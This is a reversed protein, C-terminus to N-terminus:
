SNISPLNSLIWSRLKEMSALGEEVKIIQKDFNITRDIKPCNLRLSFDNKHKIYKIEDILVNKIEKEFSESYGKFAADINGQSLKHYFIVNKLENDFLIPWDSNHPIIEPKKMSLAPYQNEKYQFYKQWFNQVIESNIPSYGRRLKEIGIQLLKSKFVSRKTNKAVLEEAIKEYFLHHQFNTQNKCYLKPAILVCLAQDCHGENVYQISRKTYRESQEHQFSADLKNEILVFIKQNESNYSFLIDTEGLGFDSISRLVNISSSYKPFNLEKVLWSCFTKNVSLEELLLLDIDREQISEVPIIDKKM